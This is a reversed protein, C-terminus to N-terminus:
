SFTVTASVVANDKGVYIEDVSMTIQGNTFSDGEIGEFLLHHEHYLDKARHAVVFGAPSLWFVVTWGADHWGGHVVAPALIALAGVKEPDYPDATDISLLQMVASEGAGIAEERMVDGIWGRIYRVAGSYRVGNGMICTNDKYEVGDKFGHMLAYNHGLEHSRIWEWTKGDFGPYDNMRLKTISFLFAPDEWIFAIGDFNCPVNADILAEKHTFSTWDPVNNVILGYVHYIDCVNVDGASLRITKSQSADFTELGYSQERLLAASKNNAAAVCEEDCSEWASPYGDFDVLVTLITRVHMEPKTPTPM